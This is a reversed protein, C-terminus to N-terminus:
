ENQRPTTKEYPGKLYEEQQQELLIENEEDLMGQLEEQLRQKMQNGLQQITGEQFGDPLDAPENTRPDLPKLENKFTMKDPISAVDSYEGITVTMNWEADVNDIINGGPDIWQFSLKSLRSIPPNFTIPNHIFTTANGGFSTLLLKLYYQSTTGTSERTTKYDEKGGADLLNMNFEPNLRLYIYDDQIKFFSSAIQITAALPSDEKTYGLNWGLGWEDDLTSYVPTLNTKWLLKFTLPDTYRQRQLASAPIFNSMQTQIFTNMSTKLSDKITQLIIANSTYQLQIQTYEQLFSGFGTFTYNSGSFGQSPNTGFRKDTFVFNSNFALLATYYTPNFLSSNSNAILVENSIDMLRLFGFDYRNPLYFRLMTQFSETPSWGRVAIYYDTEYSPNSVNPLLPVNMMYSNFYFGNFSIDNVLFNSKSEQGWQGGNASLDAVLSSYNSYAFMATHPWEPYTIGTTDLIPTDANAIKRMEIKITPFFIQWATGLTVASDYADNRNGKIFPSDTFMCWRSGQAGGILRSPVISNSLPDTFVQVSEDVFANSLMPNAGARYSRLKYFTYPNTDPSLLLLEEISNPLSVSLQTYFSPLGSGTDLTVTFGSTSGFTSSPNINDLTFLSFSTFGTSRSQMKAFYVLTGQPDLQLETDTYGSYVTQFMTSSTASYSLDGQLVVKTEPVVVATFAWTTTNHFIFKQLQFSNSFTYNSNMPLETLVGTSANYLKFRLQKYPQGPLNSAGLFVYSSSTGAVGILSTEENSPYIQDGTLTGLTTFFRNPPTTQVVDTYYTYSTLVFNGNQLMMKGPVSAYVYTPHIPLNSWTSFANPNDILSAGNLYHLNTNIIPSSQAYQSSSEDNGFGPGYIGPSANSTSVVLGQGTPTPQGDYFFNSSLATNAYPYAVLSGTINQITTVIASAYSAKINAYNSTAIDQENFGTFPIVSYFASPDPIFQKNNQSFGTIKETTRVLLEPVNSFSYYTGYGADFGLNQNSSTYIRRQSKVCVALANSLQIKPTFGGYIESTYFIGLLQISPNTTKFANDTLFNTKFTIRNIGWVGDQPIFTFGCCGLGLALTNNEGQYKYGYLPGNTTSSETFPQIFASVDAATYNSGPSTDPIYHTSYYHSIKYQRTLVDKLIYSETGGPKLVANKSGPYFYTDLDIDYPSNYQFIYNTIPDCLVTASPNIPFLHDDKRFPIYDTLDNSYGSVDYGIPAKYTLLPQNIVANAPTNNIWLNSQIPLRIFAPDAEIAVNYNSLMTTPDASPNFNTDNSLTFFTFGNPFWPIIRYQTLTPTLGVSRFIIYYDQNAYTTFSYTNSLSGSPISIREKYHIPKELRTGSIDANFAGIDHYLFAYYDSPFPQQVNSTFLESTFTLNLTYTYANSGKQAYPVPLPSQFHYFKGNSNVITFQEKSSGWLNSSQSFTNGFQTDTDYLNSWGVIANYSVDYTVKDFLFGSVDVYAYSVDFLTQIPYVVSNNKNWAPYRWLTQRPLTEVQLTQRCTSRFQFITYKGAEVNVLIDGARRRYDIYIKGSSDIFNHTFDINSQAISYPFNSSTPFTQYVSGMNRQGGEIDGLNRMHSWYHPPDNRFEQFYDNSRPVAVVNVDYSLSVGSADLGNRILVTNTPYEFYDRSYTGYNIAFYKAMNVQIFNYFDQLISLLITNTADLANYEDVTIKFQDLLQAFYVAYQANLLNVLSTNLSVAKISVRNNTTTYTCSYNNVLHYRFTHQIRYLDLADINQLIIQYAIADDIGSFSYLLYTIVTQQNLTGYSLNLKSFDTQEDLLVEKLVPYYYAVRVEQITYQYQNAFQNLFYFGAIQSRTPNPVYVKNTADYYYDGPYNFNVSYDGNVSFLPLFDSFGNLFDYFLPPTNLQIQLEALLASIDYAGTRMTLVPKYPVAIGSLDYLINSGTFSIRDTEYVQITVNQKQPRFYFFASILNLQSISFSTVNKYIRPLFLQCNMPQPYVKKDRDRSQLMVVTSVDKRETKLEGGSIEDEDGELTFHSYKLKETSNKRYLDQQVVTVFSPGAADIPPAQLGKALTAYDPGVFHTTDTLEEVDTFVSPTPSETGSWTDDTSDADSLESDSPLYPRYYYPAAM